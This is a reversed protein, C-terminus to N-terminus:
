AWIHYESGEMGEEMIFWRLSQRGLEEGVWTGWFESMQMFLKYKEEGSATVNNKERCIGNLGGNEHNKVRQVEGVASSESAGCEVNDVVWAKEFDRVRRRESKWEEDEEGEQQSITGYCSNSGRLYKEEAAIRLYDKLSWRKDVEYTYRLSYAEARAIAATVANFVETALQQNVVAPAYAGSIPSPPVHVVENGGESYPAYIVSEPQTLTLLGM